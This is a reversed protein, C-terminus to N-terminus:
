QSLRYTLLKEVVNSNVEDELSCGEFDSCNLCKEVLFKVRSSQDDFGRVVEICKKTHDIYRNVPM